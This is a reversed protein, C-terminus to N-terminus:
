PYVLATAISRWPEEQCRWWDTLREREPGHEKFVRQLAARPEREDVNDLQAELEGLAAAYEGVVGDLRAVDAELEEIRDRMEDPTLQKAPAADPATTTM